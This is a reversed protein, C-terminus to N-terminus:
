ALKFRRYRTVHCSWWFYPVVYKGHGKVEALEEHPGIM